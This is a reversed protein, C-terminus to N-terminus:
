GATSRIRAPDVTVEGILAAGNSFVHGGASRCTVVAVRIRKGLEQGLVTLEGDDLAVPIIMDM